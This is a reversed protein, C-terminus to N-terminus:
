EKDCQNKNANVNGLQNVSKLTENRRAFRYQKFFRM